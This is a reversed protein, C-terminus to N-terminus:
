GDKNHDFHDYVTRLEQRTLFVGLKSMFEEFELIELTGNQNSDFQMFVDKLQILNDVGKACLQFKVKNTIQELRNRWDAM